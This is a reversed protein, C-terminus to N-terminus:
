FTQYKTVVKKDTAILRIDLVERKGDHEIPVRFSVWNGVGGQLRKADDKPWDINFMRGSPFLSSLDPAFNFNQPRDSFCIPPVPTPTTQGKRNAIRVVHGSPLFYLAEVVRLPIEEEHMNSRLRAEDFRFCVEQGSKRTQILGGIASVGAGITWRFIKHEFQIRSYQPSEPTGRPVSIIDQPAARWERGEADTGSIEVDFAIHVVDVACGSALSLLAICFVMRMFLRMAVGNSVVYFELGRFRVM